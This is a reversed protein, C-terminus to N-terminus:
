LKLVEYELDRDNLTAFFSEVGVYKVLKDGAGPHALQILRSIDRYLDQLTEGEARRRTCSLRLARLRCSLAM